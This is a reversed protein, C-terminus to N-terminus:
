RGGTSLGATWPGGLSEHVAIRADILSRHASLVNLEAQQQANIATLVTLYNTLGAAYRERAETFALQSAELMRRYADLQAGVEQENFLAGEVQQVAQRVAQEHTATASGAAARAEVFSAWNATGQFLPLSLTAGVGWTEQTEMEDVYMAQTGVQGSLALGPLFSQISANKRAGAAQLRLGSAKLDPRNDLLDLPRGTAPDPPLGPLQAASVTAEDDVDRGLLVTLQQQRTRALARAGPVLAETAALQQRQQLVDLGTAESTLYRLETLELLARNTEIQGHLLALQEQAAVVDYYARAINGALAV